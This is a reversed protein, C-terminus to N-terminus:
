GDLRCWLSVTRSMVAQLKRQRIDTQSNGDYVQGRTTCTLWQGFCSPTIFHYFLPSIFPLLSKPFPSKLLDNTSCVASFNLDMHRMNLLCIQEALLLLWVTIHLLNVFYVSFWSFTNFSFACDSNMQSYIFDKLSFKEKFMFFDTYLLQPVCKHKHRQNSWSSNEPMYMSKIPVSAAMKLLRVVLFATLVSWCLELHSLPICVRCTIEDM